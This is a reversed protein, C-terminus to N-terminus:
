PNESMRRHLEQLNAEISTTTPGVGKEKALSVKHAAELRVQAKAFQKMEILCMGLLNGFRPENPDLTAAITLPGEAEDYNHELYLSIGREFTIKAREILDNQLKLEATQINQSAEHSQTSIRKQRLVITVSRNPPIQPPFVSDIEFGGPTLVYFNLASGPKDDEDLDLQGHGASDTKSCHKKTTNLVVNPFPTQDRKLVLINLRNEAVQAGVCTTLGLFLLVRV